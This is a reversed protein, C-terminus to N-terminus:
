KKKTLPIGLSDIQATEVLHGQNNNDLMKSFSEKKRRNGLSVLNVLSLCLTKSSYFTRGLIVISQSLKSQKDIQSASHLIQASKLYNEEKKKLGVQIM